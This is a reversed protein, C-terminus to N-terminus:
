ANPFIAGQRGPERFSSSWYAPWKPLWQNPMSENPLKLQGTLKRKRKFIDFTFRRQPIPNENRSVFRVHQSSQKRCSFAKMSFHHSLFVWWGLFPPTTGPCMYWEGGSSCQATRAESSYQKEFSAPRLDNQPCGDTCADLASVGNCCGLFRKGYDCAYKNSIHWSM